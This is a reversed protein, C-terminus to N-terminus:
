QNVVSELTKRIHAEENRAATILVYEKNHMHMATIGFPRRSLVAGVLPPGSGPAYDAPLAALVPLSLFAEVEDPTRFSPDMQDVTLALVISLLVALLFGLALNLTWRPSVPSPSATPPQAISINVIRQRDLANSIRAEEQKRSYLLFNEEAAKAQRVLDQQAMEAANLKRTQQRYSDVIQTTAAVKARLGKLEARSKALESELWGHTADRDTTEERVPNKEANDVAERTQAIQQEVEQVPRYDPAFKSLLETRKLELNLLTSKLQQLLLPNASTRVQTTLRPATTAYQEELARIRQETESVAAR